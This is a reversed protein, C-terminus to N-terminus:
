DAEFFQFFMIGAIIIIQNDIHQLYLIYYWGAPTFIM